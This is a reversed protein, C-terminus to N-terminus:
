PHTGPASHWTRTGFRQAVAVAWTVIVALTFTELRHGNWPIRSARYSLHGSGIRTAEVGSAWLQGVAVIAVAMGVSMIILATVFAIREGAFRVQLRRTVVLSLGVYLLAMPVNVLWDFSRVALQARAAAVEVASVSRSAALGAFLKAECAERTQRWGERYGLHDAYRIAIDEARRIDDALLVSHPGTWECAPAATARAGCGAFIMIAGVMPVM